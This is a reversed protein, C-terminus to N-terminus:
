LIPGPPAEDSDRHRLPTGQDVGASALADTIEPSCHSAFEEWLDSRSLTDRVPGRLTALRLDVDAVALDTWLGELMHLGSADVSGIGSCDLVLVDLEPRTSVLHAIRSSVHASTLFDLPADLRLVAVRPDTLTPYRATNRFVSTGKVRGLEVLHPRIRRVVYIALNLGVGTALGREVGIGLTALFTAAWVLGDAPTARLTTVASRFDVLGLVAAIVIAALVARPVHYLAGTFLLLTVAIVAATVVGAFPSRAGAEFNVATRSFSGAVPFGSFLGASLNGAGAALLERDPDIRERTRAAVAKAVAITEAFGVLAIVAAAVALGRVDAIGLAPLAPRPLGRPIDRLVPVGADALGLSWTLGTAVVMVALAAPVRRAFRRLLLLVVLSVGGLALTPLHTEGIREALTMVARPLYEARPLDLGLLDRAQSFAIVLAAASTFGSIVPHSIINVLAGARLVGLLLLIGGVLLALTGALAVYRATEGQALPDLAAATLLAVLAVPGFGVHSSTGFLAYLLLPVVAAYLGTIPPMGALAAYAMAQPILMAAVTVGAVVDGTLWAREYGLVWRPLLVAPLPSRRDPM